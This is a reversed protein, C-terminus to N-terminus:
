GLNLLGDKASGEGLSLIVHEQSEYSFASASDDCAQRYKEYVDPRVMRQLEKAITESDAEHDIAVGVHFNEIINKIAPLDSAFVPVRAMVYEFLKNPLALRYSFSIPEIFCLGIDASATYVPLDDYSVVGCLRVRDEVGLTRAIYRVKEIDEDTGNGLICMTFQGALPLARIIRAIGRGPMIMGQYLLIKQDDPISFKERLINSEIAESYPPLNMVISLPHSGSINELIFEADLSGSVIIEDTASLLRKEMLALMSQKVNRGGALLESYIERSDYVLCGGHIRKIEKGIYLSWLDEAFIIKARALSAYKRAALLFKIWRVWLRRSRSRRVFFYDIGERRFKLVDNPSGLAIVAVTKGHKVFTRAINLTRADSSLENFCVFFADYLKKEVM